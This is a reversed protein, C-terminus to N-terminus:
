ATRADKDENRHDENRDVNFDPWSSPMASEVGMPASSL